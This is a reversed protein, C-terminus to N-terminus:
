NIMVVMKIDIWQSAYYIAIAVFVFTGKMKVWSCIWWGVSDVRRDADTNHICRNDDM